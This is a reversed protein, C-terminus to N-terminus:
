NRPVILLRVHRLLGAQFYELTAAKPNRIFAGLWCVQKCVQRMVFAIPVFTVYKRCLRRNHAVPGDRQCAPNKFS